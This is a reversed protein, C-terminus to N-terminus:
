PMTSELECSLLLKCVLTYKKSVGVSSLLM